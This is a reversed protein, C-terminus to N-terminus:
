WGVSRTFLVILGKQRARAMFNMRQGNQDPLSLDHPLTQGVKPPTGAEGTAAIAMGTVPAAILALAFIITQVLRAM